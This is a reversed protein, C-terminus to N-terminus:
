LYGLHFELCLANTIRHPDLGISKVEQLFGWTDPGNDSHPLRPPLCLLILSTCRRPSNTYLPKEPRCFHGTHPRFAVVLLYTIPHMEQMEYSICM